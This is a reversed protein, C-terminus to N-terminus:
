LGLARREGTAATIRGRDPRTDLLRWRAVRVSLDNRGMHDFTSMRAYDYLASVQARADRAIDEGREGSGPIGYIERVLKARLRVDGVKARTDAFPVSRGAFYRSEITARAIEVVEVADLPLVANKALVTWPDTASEPKARIWRHASASPARFRRILHGDSSPLHRQSCGM